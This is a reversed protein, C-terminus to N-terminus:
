KNYAFSLMCGYNAQRQHDFARVIRWLLHLMDAHMILQQTPVSLEGPMLM